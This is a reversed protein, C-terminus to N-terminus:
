PVDRDGGAVMVVQEHGVVQGGVGLTPFLIAEIDDIAKRHGGPLGQGRMAVVHLVVLVQLRVSDVVVMKGM